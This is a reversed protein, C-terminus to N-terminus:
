KELLNKIEIMIIRHEVHPVFCDLGYSLQSEQSMITFEYEHSTRTCFYMFERNKKIKKIEEIKLTTTCILM